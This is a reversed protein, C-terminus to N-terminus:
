ERYLKGTSVDAWFTKKLVPDYLSALIPTGSNNSVAVTRAPLTHLVKNQPSIVLTAVDTSVLLYGGPAQFSTLRENKPFTHIPNGQWDLLDTTANENNASLLRENELIKLYRFQFPLVTKGAADLMGSLGNDRRTAVVFRGDWNGVPEMSFAYELDPGFEFLTKGEQDLIFDATNGDDDMSRVLNRTRLYLPGEQIRPTPIREGTANYFGSLAGPRWIMMNSYNEEAFMSCASYDIIFSEKKAQNVRHLTYLNGAGIGPSIELVLHHSMPLFHAGTKPPMVWKGNADIVGSVLLGEPLRPVEWDCLLTDSYDDPASFVADKRYVTLLGTNKLREMSFVQKPLVYGAPLINKLFASYVASFAENGSPDILFGGEPTRVQLMSYFSFEQEPVPIRSGDIRVLYARNQEQDYVRHVLYNRDTTPAFNEPLPLKKGTLDYAAYLKGGQPKAWILTTPKSMETEDPLISAFKVPLVERGKTDLLGYLNGKKVLFLDVEVGPQSIRDYVPPIVFKGAADRVGFLPGSRGPVNKHTLFQYPMSAPFRLLVSQGNTDSFLIRFRHDALHVVPSEWLELVPKGSRDHGNVQIDSYDAPFQKQGQIDIVNLRRLSDKVVFYDDYLHDMQMFRMPIIWNGAYDMLGATYQKHVIIFEKGAPEIYRYVTDIVLKGDADIMGARDKKSYDLHDRRYGYMNNVIFYGSRRTPKIHDWVLPIRLRGTSDGIGMKRDDAALVVFQRDVPAGATFDRSFLEQLRTNVFNIRPKKGPAKGKYVRCFGYQFQMYQDEMLSYSSFWDPAEYNRLPWYEQTDRSQADVIFAKGGVQALWLHRLTDVARATDQWDGYDLMCSAGDGKGGLLLGNRLLFWPRRTITVPVGLSDAPM